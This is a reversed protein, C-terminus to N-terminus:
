KKANKPKIKYTTATKPQIKYKMNNLRQIEIKITEKDYSLWRQVADNAGVTENWEHTNVMKRYIGHDIEKIGVMNEALRIPALSNVKKKDNNLGHTHGVAIEYLNLIQEM